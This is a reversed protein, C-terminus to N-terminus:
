SDLEKPLRPLAINLYNANPLKGIMWEKYVYVKLESVNEFRHLFEACVCQAPM